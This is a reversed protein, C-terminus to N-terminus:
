SLSDEQKILLLLLSKSFSVVHFHTSHLLHTLTMVVNKESNGTMSTREGAKGHAM